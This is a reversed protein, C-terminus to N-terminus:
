RLEVLEGKWEVVRCRVGAPLRYEPNPLRLRVGFTRSAADVVSDVVIIDASVIQRIPEEIEIDARTGVRIQGFAEVPLVLEVYLPDLQAVKMVVPSQASVYEGVSRVRQLVVGDVPSEIRKTKLIQEARAVEMEASRIDARAERLAQEAVKEDLLAQEYTEKSAVNRRFLEERRDLKEQAISLEVERRKIVADVSAKMKAADLNAQEVGASLYAVIQGRKVRDGRDVTFESIVGETASGLDVAQKPTVLCSREAAEVAPASLALAVCGVALAIRM